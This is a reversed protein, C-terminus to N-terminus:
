HRKFFAENMAVPARSSAKLDNIEDALLDIRNELTAIHAAQSKSLTRWLHAAQESHAATVARGAPSEHWIAYVAARPPDAKGTLWLNLTRTSVGLFDATAKLRKSPDIPLADFALRLRESGYENSAFFM